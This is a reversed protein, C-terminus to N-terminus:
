DSYILRFTPHSLRRSSVSNSKQGLSLICNAAFLEGDAVAINSSDTRSRCKRGTKSVLDMSSGQLSKLKDGAPTNFSSVVLFQSLCVGDKMQLTADSDLQPSRCDTSLKEKVNSDKSDTAVKAIGGNRHSSTYLDTLSFIRRLGVPNQNTIMCYPMDPTTIGHRLRVPSMKHGSIVGSLSINPSLSSHSAVESVTLSGPSEITTVTGHGYFPLSLQSGFCKPWAVTQLNNNSEPVTQLDLIIDPIISPKESVSDSLFGPLDLLSALKATALQGSPAESEAYIASNENMRNSNKMGLDTALLDSETEDLITKVDDGDIAELHHLNLLTVM